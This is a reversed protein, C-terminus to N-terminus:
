STITAAGSIVKQPIHCNGQFNNLKFYIIPASWFMLVIKLIIGKVIILLFAWIEREKKLQLLAYMLNVM